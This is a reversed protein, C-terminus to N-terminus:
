IRRKQWITTNKNGCFYNIIKVPDFDKKSFMAGQEYVGYEIFM